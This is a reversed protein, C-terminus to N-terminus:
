GSEFIGHRDREKARGRDGKKKARELHGGQPTGERRLRVMQKGSDERKAVSSGAMPFGRTEENRDAYVLERIRNEFFRLCGPTVEVGGLIEAYKRVTTVDLSFIRAVDQPTLPAGLEENLEKLSM